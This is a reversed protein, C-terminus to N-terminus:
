FEKIQDPTWGEPMQMFGQPINNDSLYHLNYLMARMSSDLTIIMSELPSLGYPSDTKPNMMEYAMEDTTLDATKSGRIWQEFAIEPPLPRAGVEDVRLKITAGDIPIIRILRGGRDRQKYFCLADLVLVDEIMKDMLARFRVGEGGLNTIADKLKVRDEITSEPDIDDDTDVVDFGLQTIQRKRTNIAARTTEHNVSLSRLTQFDVSSSTMRKNFSSMAANFGLPVSFASPQKGKTPDAKNLTELMRDAVPKVIFRDRLNTLLGM